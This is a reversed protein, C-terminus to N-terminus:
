HKTPVYPMVGDFIINPHNELRNLWHSPLLEQGPCSCTQSWRWFIIMERSRVVVLDSQVHKPGDGFFLRM